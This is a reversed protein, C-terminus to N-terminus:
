QEEFLASIEDNTLARTYVRFNDLTGEFFESQTGSGTDLAGIYSNLNQETIQARVIDERGVLQNDFYLEFKDAAIHRVVVHTWTNDSFSGEVTETVATSAAGNGRFVVKYVIKDNVKRIDIRTKLSYISVLTAENNANATNLWFSFTLDGQYDPGPIQNEFNVYASTGDFSIASNANGNRDSVYSVGGLAVGPDGPNIEDNVNNEFKYYSVLDSEIDIKPKVIILMEKELTDTSNSNSVTLTANYEGATEYTILPNQETSTEPTGGQFTWIWQDANTSQDTFQVQEGELIETVDATFAASAPEFVTIFNEKVEQDTTGDKTIDLTVRFTGSQNYFVKPNELDSTAPTGGEFVWAWQTPEGISADTFTVESGIAVNTANAAFNAQIEPMSEVITVTVEANDSGGTNTAILKVSFSGSKTYTVSVVNQTSTIIDGGEFEWKLSEVTGSSTSTYVIQEGEEITASSVSFSATPPDPNEPQNDESNCGYLVMFVAIIIFVVPNKKM